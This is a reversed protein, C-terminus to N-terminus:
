KHRIIVNTKPDGVECYQDANIGIKSLEKVRWYSIGCYALIESVMETPSKTVEGTDMNISLDIIRNSVIQALNEHDWSKRPSGSKKELTFSGFEYEPNEGSLEVFCEKTKELLESIERKAKDLAILSDAVSDVDGSKLDESIKDYLQILLKDVDFQENADTNM